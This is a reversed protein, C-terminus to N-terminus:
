DGKAAPAQGCPTWKSFVGPQSIAFGCAKTTKDRYHMVQCRCPGRSACTYVDGYQRVRTFILGAGCAPCKVDSALPHFRMPFEPM